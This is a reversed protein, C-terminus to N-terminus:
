YMSFFSRIRSTTQDVSDLDYLEYRSAGDSTLFLCPNPIPSAIYYDNAFWPSDKPQDKHDAYYIDFEARAVAEQIIQLDRMNVTKSSDYYLFGFTEGAEYAKTANYESTYKFHINSFSIGTPTPVPSPTPSHIPTPSATPVPTAYSGRYWDQVQSDLESQSSFNRVVKVTGDTYMLFLAPYSSRDVYSWMWTLNTLKQSTRSDVGYVVEQIRRASEKIAALSSASQSDQSDFYYVLKHNRNDFITQAHTGSIIEFTSDKNFVPNVAPTPTAPPQTPVAAVQVKQNIIVTGTAQIWQVEAGFMESISRLPVMVRDEQLFPQANDFVAVKGDVIVTIPPAAGLPAAIFMTAAIGAVLGCLLWTFRKMLKGGKNAKGPAARM